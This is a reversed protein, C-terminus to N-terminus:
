FDVARLEDPLLENERPPIMRAPAIRLHFPSDRRYPNIFREAVDRLVLGNTHRTTTETPDFIGRPSIYTTYVM